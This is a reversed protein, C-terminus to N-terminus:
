DFGFGQIELDLISLVLDIKELCKEMIEIGWIRTRYLISLLNLFHENTKLLEYDNPRAIYRNEMNGLIHNKFFPMVVNQNIDWEWRDWDQKLSMLEQEHLGVIEKRLLENSIINIDTNKLYQYTTETLYPTDWYPLYGFATDMKSVYPVDEEVADALFQYLEVNRLNESLSNEIASKTSTINERMEILYAYENIREERKENWNNVQLALLIGIMVLLIEGIAYIFYRQTSGSDILSKRVQRLFTLM